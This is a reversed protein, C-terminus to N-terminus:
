HSKDTSPTKFSKELTDVVKNYKDKENAPFKFIFTNNSAKGVVKKQYVIQDGEFYSIVFWDGSHAKYYMNIDKIAKNYVSDSTDGVANNSGYIQLSVKGDDSQIVNGNSTSNEIKLNNPYKISYLFKKNSYSKYEIKNSQDSQSKEDIMKKTEVAKEDSIKKIEIAKAESIKKIEIAKAESIKKDALIKADVIKKDALIKADTIRKDAVQEATGTTNVLTQTASVMTYIVVIIILLVVVSLSILAKLSNKM